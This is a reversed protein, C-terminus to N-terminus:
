QMATREGTLKAAQGRRTMKKLLYLFVTLASVLRDNQKGGVKVSIVRGDNQAKM